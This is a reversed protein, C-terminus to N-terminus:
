TEQPGQREGGAAGIVANVRELSPQCPIQSISVDCHGSGNTFEGM